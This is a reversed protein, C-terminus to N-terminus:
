WDEVRRSGYRSMAYEELMKVEKDPQMTRIGSGIDFVDREKHEVIRSHTQRWMALVWASVIDGHGGSRRPSEIIMGGGTTPRSRIDKLQKILKQNYPIRVRGEHMMSKARAYSETKGYRGEPASILDIDYSKLLERIAERYHIDSVVHRLGFRKIVMAFCAVVESPVLAGNEPRLEVISVTRYNKGDFEVVVLASSDNVFGFDAGAAYIRNSQYDCQSDLEADVCTDIKDSDFYAGTGTTLFEADYERKANDPDRQRELEILMELKKDYRLTLSPAHVAIATKPKGFNADFYDWLLGTKAWPTSAIIMQGGMMVRPSVAKFLEVDSIQYDADRFFASEDFAADTLSMGRLATGKATAPMVIITVVGGDERRITISEATEREVLASLYANAAIEGSIYRLAQKALPLRPAVILGFAEEGKGLGGLDRTLAGYLIRLAILTRTKGGRAGCVAIVIQRALTDVPGVCNGFTPGGPMDGGDYACTAIQLQGHGLEVGLSQVFGTYSSLNVGISAFDTVVKQTEAWEPRSTTVIRALNLALSDLDFLEPKVYYWTRKQGDRVQKRVWGNASLVSGIDQMAVMDSVNFLKTFETVQLRDNKELFEKIRYQIRQM